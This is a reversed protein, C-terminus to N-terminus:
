ISEGAALKGSLIFVSAELLSSVVADPVQMQPEQYGDGVLITKCGAARGAAIDRWRDGIMFSQSLDISWDMAAGLILGPKPKRCMCGDLDTHYCVRIDDVPFESRLREHMAEIIERPILGKRVDPQNTAVIIRFGGRRLAEMAEGVGSLFVFEELSVPAYPHGDRVIAQNIVGDRDLFVAQSM